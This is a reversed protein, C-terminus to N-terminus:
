SRRGATRAPRCQSGGLIGDHSFVHKSTVGYASSKAVPDVNGNLLVITPAVGAAAGSPAAWAPTPGSLMATALSIGAVVRRVFRM